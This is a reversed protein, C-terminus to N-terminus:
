TAAAVDINDVGTGPRGIVKLRRAHDLLEATVRTRSRLILADAEALAAGIKAPDTEYMERVEFGQEAKLLDLGAPSVEELVLITTMAPRRGDPLSLLRARRAARRRDRPQRRGRPFEAGPMRDVRADRPLRL